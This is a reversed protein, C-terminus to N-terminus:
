YNARKTEFFISYRNVFFPRDCYHVGRYAGKRGIIVSPFDCLPKETSGIPGNTGFVPVNGNGERYNRLSKGYELTVIDGWTCDKWETM